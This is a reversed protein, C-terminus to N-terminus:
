RLEELRRRAENLRNNDTDHKLIDRYLARAKERDALQKDYLSAARM